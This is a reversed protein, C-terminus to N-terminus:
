ALADVVGISHGEEAGLVMRQGFNGKEVEAKGRTTAIVTSRQRVAM